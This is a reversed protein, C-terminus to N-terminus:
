FLGDAPSDVPTGDINKTRRDVPSHQSRSKSVEKWSLDNQAKTLWRVIFAKYRSRPRKSPNADLWAQMKLIEQKLDVGPFTQRWRQRDEDTIGSFEGNSFSISASDPPQRRLPKGRETSVESPPKKIDRTNETYTNGLQAPPRAWSPLPDQGTPCSPLLNKFFMDELKMLMQPFFRIFLVNACVIGNVRVTRFERKAVGYRELVRFAELSEKRTLGISEEIDEYSRQIIDGSFKKKIIINGKQDREEKPRYWYFIDALLDIANREVKGNPYKKTPESKFIKYWCFNIVNGKLSYSRMFQMMEDPTLEHNDHFMRINGAVPHGYKVRPDDLIHTFCKNESHQSNQNM